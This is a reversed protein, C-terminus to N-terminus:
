TTSRSSPRSSPSATSLTRSITMDTSTFAMFKSKMEQDLLMSLITFFLSRRRDPYVDLPCLVQRRKYQSSRTTAISLEKSMWPSHAMQRACLVAVSNRRLRRPMQTMSPVRQTVASASSSCRPTSPSCRLASLSWARSSSLLM